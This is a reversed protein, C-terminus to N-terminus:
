AHFANQIWDIEPSDLKGTLTVIDFRCSEINNPYQQLFQRSALIIKQIKKRGITEITQMYATDSRSRVEVFVLIGGHQMILDIEGLRTRYNERVVKLGQKQLFELAIREAQKGYASRNIM